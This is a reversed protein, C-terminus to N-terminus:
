DKLFSVFSASESAVAGGMVDAVTGGFMRGMLQANMTSVYTKGDKKDYVAISCPMMVTVFLADDDNMIEAAHSPECIKIVTVNPVAKGHKVLGKQMDMTRSIEWGGNTVASQIQQITEAYDYPSVQEILMMKPMLSVMIVAMLIAGIIIGIIIKKM